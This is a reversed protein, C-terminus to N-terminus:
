SSFQLNYETAWKFIVVEFWKSLGMFAVCNQCYAKDYLAFHILCHDRLSFFIVSYQHSLPASTRSLRGLSCCSFNSFSLHNFSLQVRHLVSQAIMPLDAKGRHQGNERSLHSAKLMIPGTYRMLINVCTFHLFAQVVGANTLTLSQANNGINRLIVATNANSKWSFSFSIPELLM